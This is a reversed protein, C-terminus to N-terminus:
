TPPDFDSRNVSRASISVRSTAFDFSFDDMEMIQNRVGFEPLDLFFFRENLMRLGSLTLSLDVRLDANSRALFRKGIRRALRENSIYPMDLTQPTYQPGPRSVAEAEVEAYDEARDVYRVIIDSTNESEGSGAQFRSIELIHDANFRVTPEYFRGVRLRLKGSESIWSVGDMAGLMAGMSDKPPQSADWAGALTYGIADADEAAMAIYDWDIDDESLQGGLPHSMFYAFVLAANETYGREGTRPDLPDGARVELSPVPPRGNVYVEQFRESDGAVAIVAAYAIGRLRHQPTWGPANTIRSSAFPRALMVPAARQSATGPLFDVAIRDRFRSSPQISRGRLTRPEGNFRRTIIASEPIPGHGMAWVQWRSTEAARDYVLTPQTITQGFYVLRPSVSARVGQRGPGPKPASSLSQAVIALGFSLGISTAASAVSGIAAAAGASAGLSAAGATVAAAITAPM